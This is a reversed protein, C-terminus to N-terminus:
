KIKESRNESIKRWNNYGLKNLLDKQRGKPKPIVDLRTFFNTEAVAKIGASQLDTEWNIKEAGTIYKEIIPQLAPYNKLINLIAANGNQPSAPLRHKQYVERFIEEISSKGKNGRLLAIDCLFAVIMGRAYVQNNAGSWRTKSAEVLSVKQNQLNDLNYAESLTNLFDEFRIRNAQVGTRLAQYVTFGEYFWDYNGTLALNNPIWLHFLEHRLQEHLRQLSLTKFPMDSSVILLNAGRAEAEWRGFKTEKPFRVLSIQAKKTPAAGLLKRYEEFIETTIESFETDSFQWEGSIALNLSIKDNTFDKVRWNKGILFIAKEVNEAEFTNEGLSKESSIVKWDKPLEFKVRARIPQNNASNFQPLLDGLMLIGQEGILWSVHAMATINPSPKVNLSYSWISAKSDALYEGVALKKFSVAKNQEDTLGFDLVRDGLNETGAFTRAFSWNKDSQGSYRRLFKGDVRVIDSSPSPIKINVELNQAFSASAFLVFFLLFGACFEVMGFFIKNTTSM